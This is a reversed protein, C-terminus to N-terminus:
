SVTTFWSDVTVTTAQTKVVTAMSTIVVVGGAKTVTETVTRGEDVTATSTVTPATTTDTVTVTTAANLLSSPLICSCWSSIQSKPLGFSDLTNAPMATARAVVNDKKIMQKPKFLIITETATVHTTVTTVGTKVSTIADVAETTTVTLVSTVTKTVTATPTVTAAYVTKTAGGTTGSTGGLWSVCYSKSNINRLHLFFVLTPNWCVARKDLDAVNKFPLATVISVLAILTFFLSAAKSFM